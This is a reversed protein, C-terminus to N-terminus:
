VFQSEGRAFCAHTHLSIGSRSRDISKCFHGSLWFLCLIFIRHSCLLDLSRVRAGQRDLLHSYSSDHLGERPRWGVDRWELLIRVPVHAVGDLMKIIRLLLLRLLPEIDCQLILLSLEFYEDCFHLFISSYRLLGPKRQDLFIEHLFSPHLFFLQHILIIRRVLM